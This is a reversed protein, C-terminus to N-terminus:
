IIWDIIKKVHYSEKFSPIDYQRNGEVSLIFRKYLEGLSYTRTDTYVSPIFHAANFIPIKGRGGNDMFVSQDSARFPPKHEYILKGKNTNVIIKMGISKRNCNGVKCSVLINDKLIFDVEVLDEATVPKTNSKNDKRFPIIIKNKSKVVDNIEVKLLWKILDIIHILFSNIVGGGQSKDNRWTWLKEPDNGGSTLWIIELSLIEKYSLNNIKSKLFQIGPEFRYQFNICNSLKFNEVLSISNICQDASMCFPKECVIHINSRAVKSILSFHNIPPTAITIVDPNLKILSEVSNCYIKPNSLKSILRGSGSDAIGVIETGEINKLAKFHCDHGFGGGIIGFRM